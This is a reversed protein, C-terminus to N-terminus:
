PKALCKNAFKYTHLTHIGLYTGAQRFVEGTGIDTYFRTTNLRGIGDM